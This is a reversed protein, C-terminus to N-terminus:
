AIVKESARALEMLQRDYCQPAILQLGVPLNNVQGAPISIAPVGVLNAGVTLVDTLYMQLPDDANAGIPFATSPATPGLLFRVKTFADNFENM